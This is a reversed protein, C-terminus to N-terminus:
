TARIWRSDSHSVPSQGAKRYRNLSDTRPGSSVTVPVRRPLKSRLVQNETKLYRLYAALQKQTAGAIVLLLHHYLTKM